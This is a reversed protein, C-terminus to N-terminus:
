KIELFNTEIKDFNTYPAYFNNDYLFVPLFIKVHGNLQALM